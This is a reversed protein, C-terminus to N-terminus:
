PRPYARDYTFSTVGFNFQYNAHRSNPQMFHTLQMPNCPNCQPAELTIPQGRATAASTSVWLDKAPTAHTAQIAHIANIM